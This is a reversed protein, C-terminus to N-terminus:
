NLFQNLINKEKINKICFLVFNSFLENKAHKKTVYVHHYILTLTYQQTNIIVETFETLIYPNVCSHNQLFAMRSTLLERHAWEERSSELWGFVLAGLVLYLLVAALITLLTSNRM